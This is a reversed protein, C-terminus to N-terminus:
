SSAPQALVRKLEKKAERDCWDNVYSRADQKGTHARVHRFEVEPLDRALKKFMTYYRKSWSGIHFRKVQDKQNRFISIANLSDTNVIVKTIGKAERRKLVTLANLICQVEAQDAGGVQEKFAGAQQIKFEDCVLWFAYTGLKRKSFFSADTNVTAIM